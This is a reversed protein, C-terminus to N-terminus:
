FKQYIEKFILYTLGKKAWDKARRKIDFRVRADAEMEIRHHKIIAWRHLKFYKM